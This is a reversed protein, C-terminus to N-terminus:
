LALASAQPSREPVPCRPERNLGLFRFSATSSAARGAPSPIPKREIQKDHINIIISGSYSYDRHVVSNLLAERLAAELYITKTDPTLEAM